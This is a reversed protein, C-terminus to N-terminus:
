TFARVMRDRWGALHAKRSADTKGHRVIVLDNAPCIVIAQGEYGSARFTGLEDGTTWWHAGYGVDDVPDWSRQLRAHDVWGEPLIRTGDWMGDRLYLLGFRAFERAPAHVFSSAVFTGADDFRAEADTMGIPQFLRDRLFARTADEGGLADGLIRAVINSTGSSYNFRSGPEAALPRAAAYAAVDAKGAGFLMDVVHSAADVVYEENFDLGDRMALLHELTIARRPDDPASWEPVPAPADLQFLGDAAAIGVAAHLISKAMSWSLLKTGADVPENPRDWHELEDAYREFVLRGGHVVVVAFTREFRDRDDFMEDIAAAADGPLEGGVPWEVTPWPVQDPQAPLAVLDSM